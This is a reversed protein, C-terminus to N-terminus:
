KRVCQAYRNELARLKELRRRHREEASTGSKLFARVMGRALAPAIVLAGLVLINLDDHEVCPYASDPDGGCMFIGHTAKGSRLVMGLVKAFDPHDAADSSGKGLDVVEHGLGRVFGVMEEKWPLGAQDSALAIRM